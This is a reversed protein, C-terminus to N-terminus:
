SGYVCGLILIQEPDDDFGAVVLGKSEGTALSFRYVNRNVQSIVLLDDGCSDIGTPHSLDIPNSLFFVRQLQYTAGGEGSEIGNLDYEYVAPFNNDNSSVYLLGNLVYLGIPSSVPIQGVLDGSQAFVSVMDGGEDAVILQWNEPNVAIGRIDKFNGVFSGDHGYVSSNDAQMVHYTVDNTIQNSSYLITSFTPHSGVLNPNIGLALGYPHAVDTTVFDTFDNTGCDGAGFILSDDNDGNAVLFQNNDTLVMGRMQINNGSIDALHPMETGNACYHHVSHKDHFTIYFTYNTGTVVGPASCDASTSAYGQISFLCLFFLFFSLM